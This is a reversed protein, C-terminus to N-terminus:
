VIEESASVVRDDWGPLVVNGKEIRYPVATEATVYSSVFLACLIFFLVRESGSMLTRSSVLMAACVTMAAELITEFKTVTENGFWTRVVKMTKRCRGIERWNM